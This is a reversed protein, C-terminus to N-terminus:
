SKGKERKETLRGLAADIVAGATQMLREIEERDAAYAARVEQETRLPKLLYPSVSESM